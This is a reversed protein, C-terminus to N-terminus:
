WCPIRCLRQQETSKFLDRTVKNVREDTCQASLITAVVLELPSKHVLECRANPHMKMLLPTIKKVKSKKEEIGM